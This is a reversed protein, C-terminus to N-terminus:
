LSMKSGVNNQNGLAEIALAFGAWNSTLLGFKRIKWTKGDNFICFFIKSRILKAWFYKIKFGQAQFEVVSIAMGKTSGSPVKMLTSCHLCKALEESKNLLFHGWVKSTLNASVDEFGETDSSKELTHGEDITDSCDM